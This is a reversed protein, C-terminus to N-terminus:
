PPIGHGPRKWGQLCPPVDLCSTHTRLLFAIHPCAQFTKGSSRAFLIKYPTRGGILLMHSMLGAACTVDVVDALVSFSRLCLPHQQQVM